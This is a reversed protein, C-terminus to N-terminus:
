AEVRGTCYSVECADREGTYPDWGGVMESEYVLDPDGEAKIGEAEEPAWRTEDILGDHFAKQWGEDTTPNPTTTPPPSTLRPAQLSHRKQSPTSRIYSLYAPNGPKVVNDAVIM